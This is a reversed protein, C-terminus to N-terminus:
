RTQDPNGMMGPTSTGCDAHECECHGEPNSASTAGAECHEDCYAGLSAVKCKCGPNACHHDVKM